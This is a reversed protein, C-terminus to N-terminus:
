HHAVGLVDELRHSVYTLSYAFIWYISAVFLYVETRLGMFEAQGLVSMGVGLVDLLSAIYVLSTDKFLSVFQSVNSPIVIRLAQPLIIFGMTFFPNLGLAKAAEFQGKPIAQLGGRVNEAIYASTFLTFGVIARVVKDISEGGPIFLPLMIQFMFIVTVLPVGRILEIFVTCFLSIVPLNSRRGIALLVGIPFSFIIGTIALVMTLLVGGWQTTKMVPLVIGFGRLLVVVVLLLILWGFAVWRRITPHETVNTKHGVLMGMFILVGCVMLWMRNHLALPLLALFFLISGYIIAVGGVVRPWLSWSVGLLGAACAVCLWVRWIQETPFTGVMFLRLNVTIVRWEAQTFIWILLPRVTAYLIVLTVITLISNLWSSFLNKRLWDIIHVQKKPPEVHGPPITM